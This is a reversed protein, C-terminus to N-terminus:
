CLQKRRWHRGPHRCQGQRPFQVGEEPRPLAPLLAALQHEEPCVGPVSMPPPPTSWRHGPPLQGRGRPHGQGPHRVPPHRLLPAPRGQRGGGQDWLGADGRRVFHERQHRIGDPSSPVQPHRCDLIFLCKYLRGFIIFHNITNQLSSPHFISVLAEASCQIAESSSHMYHWKMENFLMKIKM